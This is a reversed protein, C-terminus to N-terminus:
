RQLDSPTLPEETPTKQPASLKAKRADKRAAVETKVAEQVEPPSSDLVVRLEQRLAGIFKGKPINKQRVREGVDDKVDGKYFMDM